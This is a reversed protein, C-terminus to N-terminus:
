TVEKENVEGGEGRRSSLPSEAVPIQIVFLTKSTQSRGWYYRHLKRGGNLEFRHSLSRTHRIMWREESKM